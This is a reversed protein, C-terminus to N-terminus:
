NWGIVTEEAELLYHYRQTAEEISGINLGKKTDLYLKYLSKPSGKEEPLGVQRCVKKVDKWMASYLMPTKDKTIFIPGKKIDQDEVYKRLDTRIPEPIEVKHSINYSTVNAIGEELSGVTLGPFEQPRIGVCVITKILLYTRRKGMRNATRLLMQYEERSLNKEPPMRYKNGYRKREIQNPNELYALFSRLLSIRTRVTAETMNRGKLEKEWVGLADPMLIKDEPLWNYWRYLNRHYSALTKGGRGKQELCQLYEGMVGEPVQM